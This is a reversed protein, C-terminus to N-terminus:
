QRRRKEASEWVPHQIATPEQARLPGVARQLLQPVGLTLGGGAALGLGAPSPGGSAGDLRPKPPKEAAPVPTAAALPCHPVQAPSLQPLAVPLRDALWPPNQRLM